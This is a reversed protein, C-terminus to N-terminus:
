RFLEDYHNNIEEKRKQKSLDPLYDMNELDNQWDSPNTAIYKQIRGLSDINRVIHDYYSKQWKFSISIEKENIIRTVSSKFGHIIKPLLMKTRDINEEDDNAFDFGRHLSRLDANV